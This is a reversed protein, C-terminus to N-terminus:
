RLAVHCATARQAQKLYNARLQRLQSNISVARRSPGTEIGSMDCIFIIVKLIYAKLQSHGILAIFIVISDVEVTFLVSPYTIFFLM